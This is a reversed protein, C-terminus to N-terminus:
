GIRQTRRSLEVDYRYITPIVTVKYYIKIYKHM